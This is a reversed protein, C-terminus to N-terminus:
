VITVQVKLPTSANRLGHIRPAEILHHIAKAHDRGPKRIPAGALIGRVGHRVDTHGGKSHEEGLTGGEQAKLLVHFLGTAVVVGVGKELHFLDGRIIVDALGQIRDFRAVEKAEKILQVAGKRFCTQQLGHPRHAVGPQDRQVGGPIKGGLGLVDM